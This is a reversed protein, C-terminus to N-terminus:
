LRMIGRQLVLCFGSSSTSVLVLIKARTSKSSNSATSICTNTRIPGGFVSRLFLLISWHLIIVLHRPRRHGLLHGELMGSRALILLLIERLLLGTLLRYCCIATNASTGIRHFVSLPALILKEITVLFFQIPRRTIRKRSSSAQGFLLVMPWLSSLAPSMTPLAPPQRSGPWWLKRMSESAPSSSRFRIHTNTAYSKTTWSKSSTSRHRQRKTQSNYFSVGSELSSEIGTEGDIRRKVTAPRARAPTSQIRVMWCDDQLQLVPPARQRRRPSVVM